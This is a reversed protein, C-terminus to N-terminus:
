KVWAWWTFRAWDILPRTWVWLLNRQAIDLKAVGEMGPRLPAAAGRLAAEVRFTNRGNAATAVPTVSTVEIAAPAGTLGKVLLTGAQGRAVHSVDREDVQLIVRYDDLPAIEFLLRGREVPTGLQQSLDGSVVIGAVPARIQAREIRAEVLALQAQAQRVLAETIRATAREQKGLAEQYRLLQQDRESRWRAAELQLERDDIVALLQGQTVRDGARVPASTVYGEFPAVAARQISGEVVANASVRFAGEVAALAVVGAVALAAALKLAPRRPGFLATAGKGAYGVLRGSVLRDAERHLDFVPGLLVGVSELMALTPGDLASAEDHEVTIVGVVHGAQLLPVSLVAGSRAVALYDRHALGIRQATQPLAPESVSAAQDVTEEMANELAQVLKSTREFSAAHSLAALRVVGGDVLGVAVSSAKLRTALATALGRALAGADRHESAVAVMDLAFHGRRLAEADGQQRERRFLVELWGAGWHLQRLAASLSGDTRVVTEVVVVAALDEGVEIPYAVQAVTGVGGGDPREVLGRRDRLATEAAGVLHRIDRSRDPWVAAPAFVGDRDRILLLAARAGIIQACQLALWAECFQDARQAGAFQSWIAADSAGGLDRSVQRAMHATDVDGTALAM